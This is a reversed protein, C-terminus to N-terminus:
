ILLTTNTPFFDENVGNQLVNTTISFLREYLKILLGFLNNSAHLVNNLSSVQVGFLNEVLEVFILSTSKIGLFEVKEKLIDIRTDGIVFGFM